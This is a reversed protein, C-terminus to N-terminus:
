KKITYRTGRKEGTKSLKGEDVLAKLKVSLANGSATLKAGEKIDNASVGEGGGRRVVAIVAEEDIKGGGGGGSGRRARARPASVGFDALESQLGRVYEAQLTEQEQVLAAISAEFKARDSDIKKTLAEIKDRKEQLSALTTTGAM